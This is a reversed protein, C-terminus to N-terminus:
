NHHRLYRVVERRNAYIAADLTEQDCPFGNSNAWKLTELHGEEALVQTIDKMNEVDCGIEKLWQLTAIKGLRAAAQCSRMGPTYGLDHMNKLFYFNNEKSMLCCSLALEPDWELTQKKILWKVFSLNGHFGADGVSFEDWEIKHILENAMKDFLINKSVHKALFSWANNKSLAESGGRSEGSERITSHSAMMSQFNTCCKSDKEFKYWQKCVPAMFLFSHSVMGHITRFVDEPLNSISLSTM